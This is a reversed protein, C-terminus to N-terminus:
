PEQQMEANVASPTSSSHHTLESPPENRNEPPAQPPFFGARQPLFNPLPWPPFPNRMAPPPHPVGAFDRPPFYERPGYMGPHPPPPFLPGRRLFSGRPDMPFLPSRIPPYPSPVYGPGSAEIGPLHRDSVNLLGPVGFNGKPRNGSPDYGSTNESPPQGDQEGVGPLGPSLRLPGELLTPPSLFARTESSPRGLPSPGRPSNERGFAANSVDFAYPDKELLELKFEAETLKQRNHTNEKRFDNLQREAARAALWNDHAKKEHSTIQSQFSRITKELEEELDKARIRYSNLEEAAHNIKEDVKSLKEEKQLRYKEEVTLKRHLKMENEQYMETMVRLKQQLKQVESEFHSTESHLSSQENQLQKIRDALEEKAKIEDSLKAYIQDRETELTKLSASLKAAYILKKVTRKQVDDLHEGNETESKMEVEWSNDKSDNEGGLESSWEKMALLCETLSKIQSEKNNLADDTDRKSSELMKTQESLESLREDWGEAEHSLQQNSEQIRSREELADQLSIELRDRSIQFVKLTIRAEEAQSKITKAEIELSEIRKQIESLLSDQQLRKSKEEELEEELNKMENQLVTNSRNLEESTAELCTAGCLEKLLDAEKLSSELEEYQQKCLSLKELISCKEEVLEAVKTALQRERGVYLRSKISQCTRCIFLLVTFLGVIVACFVMEWPFENQGLDPKLDEPFAEMLKKICTAVASVAGMVFSCIEPTKLNRLMWLTPEDEALCPSPDVHQLPTGSFLEKTEEATHLEVLHEERKKGRLATIIHAETGHGKGLEINTCHKSEPDPNSSEVDAVTDPEANVRSDQAACQARIVSLLDQLKQLWRMKEQMCNENLIESKHTASAPDSSHEDKRSNKECTFTSLKGEINEVYQQYWLLKMRSGECVSKLQAVQVRTVMQHLEQLESLSIEHTKGEKNQQLVSDTVTFSIEESEKEDEIDERISKGWTGEQGTEPEETVVKLDNSKTLHITETSQLVIVKGFTNEILDSKQETSSELNIREKRDDERNEISEHDIIKYEFQSNTDKDRNRNFLDGLFGSARSFINMMGKAPLSRQDETGQSELTEQSERDIRKGEERDGAKKSHDSEESQNHQETPSENPKTAYPKEKVKGIQEEDSACASTLCVVSEVVSEEQRDTPPLSQGTNDREHSTALDLHSPVNGAESNAVMRPQEQYLERQESFALHSPEASMISNDQFIEKSESIGSLKDESPYHPYLFNGERKIINETDDLYSSSSPEQMGSGPSALLYRFNQTEMELGEKKFHERFDSNGKDVTVDDSTLFETESFADQLNLRQDEAQNKNTSIWEPETQIQLEKENPNTYTPDLSIITREQLIHDVLGKGATLDKDNKTDGYHMKTTDKKIDEVPQKKGDDELKENLDHTFTKNESSNSKDNDINKSHFDGLGRSTRSFINGVIGQPPLSKVDMRNQSPLREQKETNIRNREEWDAKESNDSEESWNHHETLLLEHKEVYSEEKETSIYKNDCSAETESSLFALHEHTSMEQGDTPSVPQDPNHGEHATLTTRVDIDVLSILELHSAESKGIVIPYEQSLQEREKIFTHEGHEESIVASEQFIEKSTSIDPLKVTTDEKPHSYIIDSERKIIKITEDYNLDSDMSALIDGLDQREKGLVEEKKVQEISNEYYMEATDSNTDDELKENVEHVEGYTESPRSIISGVIGINGNIEDPAVIASFDPEELHSHTETPLVENKTIFTEDKDKNRHQTDFTLDHESTLCPLEETVTEEERNTPSTPQGPYHGEYASSITLVDVDSSSVLDLHSAFNGEESNRVFNLQEQSPQERQEIFAQQSPKASLELSDQFIEKTESVDPVDEQPCAIYNENEKFNEMNERHGLSVLQQIDLDSPILSDKQDKKEKQLVKEKKPHEGRNSNSNNETEDDSLKHLAIEKNDEPPDQNMASQEMEEQLKFVEASLAPTIYTTYFETEQKQSTQDTLINEEELTVKKNFQLKTADSKSYNEHVTREENIHEEQSSTPSMLDNKQTDVQFKDENVTSDIHHSVVMDSHPNKRTQTTNMSIPEHITPANEEEEYNQKEADAYKTTPERNEFKNGSLKLGHRSPIQPLNIDKQYFWILDEDTTKNLGDERTSSVVSFERVSCQLSDHSEDTPYKKSTVTSKINTVVKKYVELFNPQQWNHNLCVKSSSEDSLLEELVENNNINGDESIDNSDYEHKGDEMSDEEREGKKCVNKENDFTTISIKGPESSAETLIGELEFFLRRYEKLLFDESSGKIEEEFVEQRENSGSHEDHTDPYKAIETIFENGKIVTKDNEWKTQLKLTSLLLAEESLGADNQKQGPLEGNNIQLAEAKPETEKIDQLMDEDSESQSTEEKLNQDEQKGQIYEEEVKSTIGPVTSLATFHSLTPLSQQKEDKRHKEGTLHKANTSDSLQFYSISSSSQDVTLKDTGKAVPFQEGNHAPSVHRHFGILRSYMNEYWGSQASEEDETSKMAQSEVVPGQDMSSHKVAMHKDNVKMTSHLQAESTAVKFNLLHHLNGSFWGTAPSENGLDRPDPLLESNEKQHIEGTVSKGTEITKETDIDSTIARLDSSQREVASDKEEQIKEKKEENIAMKEKQSQGFNLVNDLRLHFWRSTAGKSESAKKEQEEIMPDTKTQQESDEGMRSGKKYTDSGKNLIGLGSDSRGFDLLDTFINDYWGPEEIESDEEDDPDKLSNEDSLAIKRSRFSGEQFTETAPKLIEKQTNKGIGLWGGIDPVTWSSEAADQQFADDIKNQSMEMKGFTEQLDNLLTTQTEKSEGELQGNASASSIGQEKQSFTSTHKLLEGEPMIPDPGVTETDPHLYETEENDNQLISDENEFVYEGGDLCVFDTEKTPVAVEQSIYVDEIKVADRPFYGFEKGKSGAWLDERKGTLKFYVLVEEGTKFNLYRCDPGTYDQAAQVRIMLSECESDGCKKMESLIKESQLSTLFSVVLLLSGQAGFQVM